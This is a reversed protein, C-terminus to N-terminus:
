YWWRRGRGGAWFPVGDPHRLKLLRDGKKIEGAIITSQGDYSIQSGKVEIKDGAQIEMNQQEMYWQPGLHVPIEGQSTKIRLHMGGGYMGMGSNIYDVNTVEGTITKVNQPDYMRGYGMGGGCYGSGRGGYSRPHAIAAYTSLLSFALLATIITVIRKM